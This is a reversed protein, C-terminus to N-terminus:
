LTSPPALLGLERADPRIEPDPDRSRGRHRTSREPSRRRAARPCQRASPYRAPFTSAHRTPSTTKLSSASTVFCRASSSARDSSCDHLQDRQERDGQQRRRRSGRLRLKPANSTATARSPDSRIASTESRTKRSLALLERDRRRDAEGDLHRAIRASTERGQVVLRPDPADVRAFSQGRERGPKRLDRREREVGLAVDVERLQDPANAPDIAGGARGRRQNVLPQIPRVPEDDM